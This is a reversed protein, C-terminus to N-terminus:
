ASWLVFALSPNSFSHSARGGLLHLSIAWSLLQQKVSPPAELRLKIPQPSSRVEGTFWRCLQRQQPCVPVRFGVKSWGTVWNGGVTFVEGTFLAETSHFCVPSSLFLLRRWLWGLFARLLLAWFWSELFLHTYNIRSLSAPSTLWISIPACIVVIPVNMQPWSHFDQLCFVHLIRYQHTKKDLFKHLGNRKKRCQKERKGEM